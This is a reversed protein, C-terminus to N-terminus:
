AVEITGTLRIDRSSAGVYVDRQGTARVWKDKTGDPRSQLVMAPNWYCLSREEIHITVPRSEQPALHKVRAYGALQKKAMQIHAPVEAAGLYVQVIEDGSVEGTNTVTLSVAYGDGEERIDLDSYVFTTYSLGYGFEYLPKRGEREYWRYGSFIGESMEAIRDDGAAVGIQRRQLHEPTDSLPTDENSAPWTQSLKGSPNTKGTLIEAIVRSGEQGPLYTCLIADVKDAWRGIARANSTQLVVIFRGNEKRHAIASELLATQEESIEISSGDKKELMGAFPSKADWTDCAYYIVTDATYVAALMADLREKKRTPTSWALRLQLDKNKVAQRGFVVIPYVEGKKLTLKKGTIGMGEPTHAIHEWPWQTWERFQANGIVQWQGDIQLLFVGEGGVCELLLTYEGDEPAKLFGKWTYSVGDTFATGNEGNRYHKMPNGEADTGCTFNIQSDIAALTGLLKEDTPKEGSTAYSSLGTNVPEGDEDLKMEGFFAMGAGGPGASTQVKAREEPLIGWTRALGQERCNEDQWLYEAPVAEGVYDIGEYVPVETGSIEQLAKAPEIMRELRGFSREQAEGCLPYKAGPGALIVKGSFDKEHLPLAEKENKLLVIGERVMDAALAANRELLGNEVAEEYYWEMQIPETHDPEAKVNGDEDLEVLGLLGVVSMGYLVHRCNEDLQEWSFTGRRINRAIRASDNYAPYPMEMDMGKNLTFEHVAGWDSMISGQFGWMKRLVDVNLATSATMYGDNIVNYADMVSGAHGKRIAEEFPKLYNEHLTQEDVITRVPHEAMPSGMINGATLHKITAVVHEDQTGKTEATGLRAALFSDESKIDKNREFHPSRIVDVQPALLFNGSCAADESGAVRGFQYAMEDDWTCGLLSPQPLGTTEVIGTIGAPGDYMVVEPVGLRPIGWQYGANGIKGKDAPEKAGGLLRCKEEFTMARVLADIKRQTTQEDEIKYDRRTFFKPYTTFQM